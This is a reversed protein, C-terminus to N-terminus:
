WPYAKPASGDTPCMIFEGTNELTMADLVTIITGVARDVPAAGWKTMLEIGPGFQTQVFGPAVAQVAIGKPKLDMAMSKAVMNVGAKSTRYAYKGGGTNDGISGLGTSIIAVKGGESLSPQVAQQVRLPGLTNVEFAARMREMTVNELSQEDFIQGAEPQEGGGCVSGANHVVVDVKVGELAAALKAGVDDSAVDIGPVVTVDGGVKSLLDEGTKSSGASRCTAFVKDGRAALQKTMELGLGSSCGTILYTPM